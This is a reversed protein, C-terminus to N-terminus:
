KLILDGALLQARLRYRGAPNDHHFSRFLGGHLQGFASATLDGALVSAEARRYSRPDGVDIIMDGANLSVDKDGTIGSITVDGASCRVLLNMSRPLEIRFHHLGRGSGGRITLHDAAFSIKMDRSEDDDVLFCFVKVAAADSGVINFDGSRLNMMLDHGPSVPAEFPKACTGLTEGYLVGGHVCFFLATLVVIPIRM